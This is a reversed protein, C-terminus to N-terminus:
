RKRKQGVVVPTALMADSACSSELTRAMVRKKWAKALGAVRVSGPRWVHHQVFLTLTADRKRQKRRRWMWVIRQRSILRQLRGMNEVATHDTVRRAKQKCTMDKTWQMVTRRAHATIHACSQAWEMLCEAQWRCFDVDPKWVFHRLIYGFATIGHPSVGHVDGVPLLMRELQGRYVSSKCYHEWPWALIRWWVSWGDRDPSNVDMGYTLALQLVNNAYSLTVFRDPDFMKRVATHLWTEGHVNRAHMDIGGHTFWAILASEEFTEANLAVQHLVTNGDTPLRVTLDAGQHRLRAIIDMTLKDWSGCSNLCNNLIHPWMPSHVVVDYWWSLFPQCLRLYVIRCWRHPHRPACPNGGNRVTESWKWFSEMEMWWYKVERSSAIPLAHIRDDPMGQHLMYKFWKACAQVQRVTVHQSQTKAWKSNINRCWFQICWQWDQLPLSKDGSTCVAGVDPGQAQVPRHAHRVRLERAARQCMDNVEDPAAIYARRLSIVSFPSPHHQSTLHNWYTQVVDRPYPCFCEMSREFEVAQWERIEHAEFKPCAWEQVPLYRRQVQQTRCKWPFKISGRRYPLQLQILWALGDLSVCADRLWSTVHEWWPWLFWSKFPKGFSDMMHELTRQAAHVDNTLLANLIRTFARRLVPPMAKCDAFELPM